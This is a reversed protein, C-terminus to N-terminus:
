RNTYLVCAANTQPEMEFNFVFRFESITGWSSAFGIQQIKIKKDMKWKLLTENHPDPGTGFTITNKDWTLWFTRWQDASLIGPTDVNVLHM